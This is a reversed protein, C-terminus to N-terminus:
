SSHHLYPHCYMLLITSMDLYFSNQMDTADVLVCRLSTSSALYVMSLQLFAGSVVDVCRTPFEYHRPAGHPCMLGTGAIPLIEQCGWPM